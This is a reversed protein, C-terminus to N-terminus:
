LKKPAEQSNLLSGINHHQVCDRSCSHSTNLDWSEKTHESIRSPITVELAQTEKDTFHPGYFFHGWLTIPHILQTGIHSVGLVSGPAWYANLLCRCCCNNGSEMWISSVGGGLWSCVPWSHFTSGFDDLTLDWFSHKCFFGETIGGYNKRAVSKREPRNYDVCVAYALIVGSSITVLCFM